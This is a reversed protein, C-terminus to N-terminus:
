WKKATPVTESRSFEYQLWHGCGYSGCFEHLNTEEATQKCKVAIKAFNESFLLATFVM